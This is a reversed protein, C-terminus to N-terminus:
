PRRRNVDDLVHMMGTSAGNEVIREGTTRITMESAARRYNLFAFGETGARFQYPQDAAIFITTGPGAVLSGIRVEGRLVHILEDRSHSHVPSEYAFSRATYLLWLSCTPCTADAFFRTERGPELAEFTGRPGIVHVRPAPRDEHDLSPGPRVDVTSSLGERAGMHIVRSEARAEVTPGAQAEIVIAGGASCLREEEGLVALAGSEVFLAEDGHSAEWRISTGADLLVRDMWLSAGPPSASGSRFPGKVRCHPALERGPTSCPDASVVEIKRV